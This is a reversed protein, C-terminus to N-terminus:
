QLSVIRFRFSRCYMLSWSLVHWTVQCNAVDCCRGAACTASGILRCLTANCCASNCDQLYWMVGRMIYQHCDYSDAAYIAHV